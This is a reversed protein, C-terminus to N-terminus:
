GKESAVPSLWYAHFEEDPLDAAWEPLQWAGTPKWGDWDETVERDGFERELDAERLCRYELGYGRNLVFAAGSNKHRVIVYADAM